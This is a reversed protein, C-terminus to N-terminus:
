RQKKTRGFARTLAREAGRHALPKILLSSFYAVGSEIARETDAVATGDLDGAERLSTVGHLLYLLSAGQTFKL